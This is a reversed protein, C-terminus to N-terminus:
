NMLKKCRKIEDTKNDSMRFNIELLEKVDSVEKSATTEATTTLPNGYM